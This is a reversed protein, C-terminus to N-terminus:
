QTASSISKWLRKMFRKQESTLPHLALLLDSNKAFAAKTWNASGTILTQGDIYLFKHHLLQVGQSLAVAVGAKKLQELAKASAGLGSHMDIVISVPLGRKHAQILEEVLEPHTFTFLAAQISHKASQIHTKLAQLTQGSTDPLLWLELNQNALTTKLHGPEYPKHEQLFKAILPSVFGIVLNDHMRLSPTTLNASGIFIMEQDLVLIKQHMLGTNKIPHLDADPLYRFLNPSGETDYYITM